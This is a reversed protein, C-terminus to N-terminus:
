MLGDFFARLEPEAAQREPMSLRNGKSCFVEAWYSVFKSESLARLSADEGRHQMVCCVSIGDMTPAYVAVGKKRSAVADITHRNIIELLKNKSKLIRNHLKENVYASGIFCSGAHGQPVEGKYYFAM